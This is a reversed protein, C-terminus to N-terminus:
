TRENVGERNNGEENEEEQSEDESDTKRDEAGVGVGVVGEWRESILEQSAEPSLNM